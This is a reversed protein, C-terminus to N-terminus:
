LAALRDVLLEVRHDTHEPPLRRARTLGALGHLSAWFTETEYPHDSVPHFRDDEPTIPIVEPGSM